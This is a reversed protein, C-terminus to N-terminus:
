AGRIWPVPIDDLRIRLHPPVGEGVDPNDNVTHNCHAHPARMDPVTRHHNSQRSLACRELLPAGHFYSANCTPGSAPPKVPAEHLALAARCHQCIQRRIFRDGRLWTMWTLELLLARERHSTQRMSWELGCDFQSESLLWCLMHRYVDHTLRRLQDSEVAFQAGYTRYLNDPPLFATAASLEVSHRTANFVRAPPGRAHDARLLPALLQVLAWQALMGKWYKAPRFQSDLWRDGHLMPRFGSSVPEVWVRCHGVFSANCMFLAYKTKKQQVWSLAQVPSFKSTSALLCRLDPSVTYPNGQVFVTLKALKDYHTVIHRMYGGWEQGRNAIDTCTINDTRRCEATASSNLRGNSLYLFAHWKGLKRNGVVPRGAYQLVWQLPESFRTVVLHAGGTANMESAGSINVRGILARRAPLM